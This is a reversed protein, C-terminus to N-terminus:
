VPNLCPPPNVQVLIAPYSLSWLHFSQCFFGYFLVSFCAIQIGVFIITGKPLRRIHDSANVSSLDFLWVNLAERQSLHSRFVVHISGSPASQPFLPVRSLFALGFYENSWFPVESALWLRWCQFSLDNLLDFVSAANRLHCLFGWENCVNTLEERKQSLFRRGTYVVKNHKCLRQWKVVHQFGSRM